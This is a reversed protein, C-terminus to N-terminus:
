ETYTYMVNVWDSSYVSYNFTITFVGAPVDVTCDYSAGIRQKVGNVFLVLDSPVETFDTGYTWTNDDVYVADVDSHIHVAAAAAETLDWVAKATPLQSNTTGSTVTDVIENVSGGTELQIYPTSFIGTDSDFSFVSSDVVGSVTTFLIRGANYSSITDTLELFTDQAELMSNIESETYYRNDLQGNDLQTITYYNNSLDSVVDNIDGQLIGSVTSITTYIDSNFGNIETKNYYNNSLDSIAGNIDSQLIGSLTTIETDVYDISAIDSILIGGATDFRYESANWFAVYQDTPTDERTAVAQLSGSIGVRFNNEVEDYVFFYDEESGRDIEIGAYRDGTLGAGVEGANVTILKDSVTLEQSHITTTTGSVTLDGGITLDGYTYIAKGQHAIKPRIQEFPTDVVEWVIADTLGSDLGNIADQLTGSVTTVATSTFDYVAKATPVQSDTSVDDISTVFSDIYIEDDDVFGLSGSISVDGDTHINPAVLHNEGFWLGADDVVANSSEFLIRGANYVSITDTLEIFEDSAEALENIANQLTGSTTDIKDDLTNYNNTIESQLTGSVTSIYNNLTGYNSTIDSSNQSIQSQLTGSVSNITTHVSKATPLQSDTSDSDVSTTISDVTTTEDFGFTGSVTVNGSTVINPVELKQDAVRFVFVGSDIVASDSEFLIRGENYTPITDILEIFENQSDIAGSLTTIFTDIETETYYRNDHDTSTAEYHAELMAVVDDIGSSTAGLGEAVTAGKYTFFVGWLPVTKTLGPNTDFYIIGASSDYEWNFNTESPLIEKTYDPAGSGNDQFVRLKYQTEAYRMFQDLRVHGRDSHGAEICDDEYAVWAKNDNVTPDATFKVTHQEVLGAAIGSAVLPGYTGIVDVAPIQSAIVQHPNKSIYGENTVGKATSTFGVNAIHKTQISERYTDDFAM